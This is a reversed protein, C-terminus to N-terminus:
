QYSPKRWFCIKFFININSHLYNTDDKVQFIHYHTISNSISFCGILSSNKPWKDHHSVTLITCFTQGLTCFLPKLIEWLHISLTWMNIFYSMHTAPSSTQPHQHRWMSLRGCMSKWLDLPFDHLGSNWFSARLYSYPYLLLDVLYLYSVSLYAVSLFVIFFM